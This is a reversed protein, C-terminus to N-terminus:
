EVRIVKRALVEQETVDLFRIEYTGPEDPLPLAVPVEGDIRVANVWTFIAQDAKAITIRRDPSTSGTTFGVDITTGAAAAEPAELTAGSQLQADAALVEMVQTALIRRGESLVYRLEYLGPTEPATLKGETRAQARLYSDYTAADSGAPAIAIYDRPNITASWGIAVEDGARIEAPGTITVEPETIEIPQRAMDRRGERLVYRLEYLGPESPAVIQGEGQAGKGARVYSTYSGEEAGMPVITIYDQPSVAGTWSVALPSGALATEPGSVTVEALTVEVTKRALPKRGERLVYRLEYLGPESPITLMGETGGGVRVYNDYAKDEAGMPVITVYDQPHVAGTWGVKVKAGAVVSDPATLSVEADSLTIPRSALVRRGERLVYRIEYQGPESPMQLKGETADDTRRYSLYVDEDAGVPVVTIYDRPHVTGTWSVDIEAGTLATDPASVTVSPATIEIPRTALTRRGEQLVYRLEYLGVEAPAQITGSTADQVRIYNDYTGDEAGAPVITIYDRPHVAGTWSVPVQAGRQAEDPADLTIEPETLEIPVSAITRRGENLIYRIEYLGPEPLMTLKGERASQVRTYNTYSGEDAGAAVITVYDREDIPDSWGVTIEQGVLATAPADLTVSVDTVEIPRAVATTDDINFLYRVEYLGPESPALLSGTENEQVTLYDGYSGEEAGQPVITVYDSYHSANTWAVDFRAGTATSDPATLTIAHPVVEIARTGLIDGTAAHIYRLEYMGPRTAARLEAEDRDDTSNFSIYDESEMEPAAFTVYDGQAVVESWGVQLAAGAVVTDPATLTVQPLEPEPEEVVAVASGIDSLADGLESANSAQIYRGGTEEAICALSAADDDSALGFGVVHATFGVGGKELTRALECPDRECSELGDSILVVTAPRDTYSLAMAAQEVADTLPTKGTPTITGIRELIAPATGPAPAILTEIDTCDGRRRHGYAMLGVQRDATWDGLLNGMVSRAIEIKATGDIQGWMSNSGDFVVMVDDSAGSQATAVGPAAVLALCAALNRLISM